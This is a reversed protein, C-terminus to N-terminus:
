WFFQILILAGRLRSLVQVVDAVTAAVNCLALGNHQLEFAFSSMCYRRVCIACIYVFNSMSWFFVSLCLWCFRHLCHERLTLMLVFTPTYQSTKQLCNKFFDFQQSKGNIWGSSIWTRSFFTFRWHNSLHVTTNDWIWSGLDMMLVFFFLLSM